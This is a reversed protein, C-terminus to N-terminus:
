SRASWRQPRCPWWFVPLGFRGAVLAVVFSGVAAFAFHGLSVLGAWGTLLLLSLGVMAYVLMTTGTAVSTPSVVIPYALMVVVVVAGVRRRLRTVAPLGRLETPVPRVERAARWSGGSVDVRGSAQRGVLLFVLVIM